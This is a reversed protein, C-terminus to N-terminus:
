KSHYYPVRHYDVLDPVPLLFNTGVTLTLIAEMADAQSLPKPLPLKKDEM